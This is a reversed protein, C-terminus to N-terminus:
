LGLTIHGETLFEASLRPEEVTPYAAPDTAFTDWDLGPDEAKALTFQELGAMRTELDRMYVIRRESLDPSDHRSTFWFTFPRDPGAGEVLRARAIMELVKIEPNAHAGNGCFM